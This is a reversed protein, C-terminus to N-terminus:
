NKLMYPCHSCKYQHSESHIVQHNHLESSYVFSKDCSQCPFRSMMVPDHTLKHKKLAALSSFEKMCHKRKCTFVCLHTVRTYENLEKQSSLYVIGHGEFHCIKCMFQRTRKGNSSLASQSIGSSVTQSASASHSTPVAMDFSINLQDNDCRKLIVSCEKLKITAPVSSCRRDFNVKDTKFSDLIDKQSKREREQFWIRLEQKDMCRTIQFFGDGAYLFTVGCHLDVEEGEGVASPTWVHKNNLLVNVPCNCIKSAVILSIVDLAFDQRLMELYKPFDLGSKKLVHSGVDCVLDQNETVFERVTAHMEAINKKVEHGLRWFVVDDESDVAVQM